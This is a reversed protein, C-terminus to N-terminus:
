LKLCNFIKLIARDVFIQLFKIKLQYNYMKINISLFLKITLLHHILFYPHQMGIKIKRTTYEISKM